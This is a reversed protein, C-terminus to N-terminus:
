EGLWVKGCLMCQSNGCGISKVATKFEPREIVPYEKGNYMHMFTRVEPEKEIAHKCDDIM